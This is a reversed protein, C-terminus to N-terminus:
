RLTEIIYQIGSSYHGGLITRNWKFKYFVSFADSHGQEDSQYLVTEEMESRQYSVIASKGFEGSESRLLLFDKHFLRGEKNTLPQIFRQKVVYAEGTNSVIEFKVGRELNKDDKGMSGFNIRASGDLPAATIDLIREIEFNIRLRVLQQEFLSSDEYPVVSISLFSFYRGYTLDPINTLYYFMTFSDDDGDDNSILLNDREYTLPVIDTSYLQGNIEEGELKFSIFMPDDVNEGNRDNVFVSEVFQEVKYKKGLNTNVVLHLEITATELPRTLNPFDVQTLASGGPDVLSLEIFSDIFFTIEIEEEEVLMEDQYFALSLASTYTGAQLDDPIMLSFSLSLTEATGPSDSVFIDVPLSTLQTKRFFDSTGTMFGRVELGMMEVQARAGSDSIFNKEFSAEVRYSTGSTLIDLSANVDADSVGREYTGFELQESGMSIFRFNTGASGKQEAVFLFVFVMLCIGLVHRVAKYRMAKM